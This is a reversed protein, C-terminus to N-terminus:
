EVNKIMGHGLMEKQKEIIFNAKNLQTKLDLIQSKLEMNENSLEEVNEKLDEILETDLNEEILLIGTAIYYDLIAHAQEETYESIPLRALEKQVGNKLPGRLRWQKYERRVSGTGRARRSM